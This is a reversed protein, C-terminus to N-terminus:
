RLIRNGVENDPEKNQKDFETQVKQYELQLKRSAEFRNEASMLSRSASLMFRDPSIGVESVSRLFIEPEGGQAGIGPCLFLCSSEKTQELFKRVVKFNIHETSYNAGLVLGDVGADLSIRTRTDILTEGKSNVHETNGEIFADDSMVGMNFVGKNEFSHCYEIDERDKGLIPFITTADFGKVYTSSIGEKNTNGIENRKRDYISLLGLKQCELVIKTEIEGQADFKEFFNPNVKIAAVNPAVENIYQVCWDIVEDKDFKGSNNKQLGAELLIQESPDLGAVITTRKEKVIEFWKKQFESLEQKM